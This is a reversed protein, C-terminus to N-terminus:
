LYNNVSLFIWTAFLHEFYSNWLWSSIFFNLLQGVFLISISVAFFFIYAFVLFCFLFFTVYSSRWLGTQMFPCGPIEMNCLNNTLLMTFTMWSMVLFIFNQYVCVRHLYNTFSSAGIFSMLQYLQKMLMIYSRLLFKKLFFIM